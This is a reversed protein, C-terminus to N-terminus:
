RTEVASVPPTSASAAHTRRRPTLVAVQHPSAPMGGVVLTPTPSSERVHASGVVQVQVPTVPMGMVQFQPLPRAGTVAGEPRALATGIFALVMLLLTYICINKLVSVEEL